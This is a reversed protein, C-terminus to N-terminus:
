FGRGKVGFPGKPKGSSTVHQKQANTDTVNESVEKAETSFLKAREAGGDGSPAKPNWNSVSGGPPYSEM